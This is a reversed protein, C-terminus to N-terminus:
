LKEEKQKQMLYTLQWALKFFTQLNFLFLDKFYRKFHNANQLFSGCLSVTISFLM